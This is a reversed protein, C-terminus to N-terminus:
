FFNSFVARDDVDAAFLDSISTVVHEYVKYGTVVPVVPKPSYLAFSSLHGTIM